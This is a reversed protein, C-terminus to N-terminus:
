GFVKVGCAHVPIDASPFFGAIVGRDPDLQGRGASVEM